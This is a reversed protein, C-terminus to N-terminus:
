KISKSCCEYIWNKNEGKQYITNQLFAWVTGAVAAVYLSSYVVARGIFAYAKNPDIKRKM